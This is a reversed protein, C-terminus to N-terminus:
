FCVHLVFLSATKNASTIVSEVETHRQLVALIEMDDVDMDDAAIESQEAVERM